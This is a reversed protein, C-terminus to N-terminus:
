GVAIRVVTGAGTGDEHYLDELEVSIAIGTSQSFLALREATIGMGLSKHRTATKSNLAAAQARGIGNDSISIGIKPVFGPLPAAVDWFFVEIALRRDPHEKQALGHWIANEVFPQILLPPVQIARTDLGAQEQISFTFQGAFRLSEMEAYYRTAALENELSIAEMRSNELVLRILRSFKTLYNSAIDRDSLQIFRNISNLSNFIFHPNMQARLASMQYESLRQRFEAEKQAFEAEKQRMEAEKQRLEAALRVQRLRFVWVLYVIALLLAVMFLLFWWTAYWPPEIVIQLTKEAGWVGDRNQCKVRFLYHGPAIKTYAASNRPGCHVWGTDVGELRYAYADQAPDTFNIASWSVAFFNDVYPLVVEDLFDVHKAGKWPRGFVSFETFHVPPGESLKPIQGPDLRYLGGWNISGDMRVYMPLEPLYMGNEPGFRRLQGTQPKYLFVGAFGSIWIDGNKDVAVHQVNGKFNAIRNVQQGEPLAPDFWSVGARTAMWIRGQADEAFNKVYNSSLSHPNGAITKFSSIRGSAPDLCAVGHEGSAASLWVQGKRSVFLYVGGEFPFVGMKAHHYYYEVRGSQPWYRLLTPGPGQQAVSIWLSGDPAPKIQRLEFIPTPKDQLIDPPIEFTGIAAGSATIKHIFGANTCVWLMGDAWCLDNFKERTKIKEAGKMKLNIAVIQGTKEDKRLLSQGDDGIFWTVDAAGDHWCQTPKRAFLAGPTCQFVSRLSDHVSLTKYTAWIRGERDGFIRKQEKGDITGPVSADHWASFQKTAPDFLTLHQATNLWLKGDPRRLINLIMDMDVGVGDGVRDYHQAYQAWQKSKLDFVRLGGWWGGIWLQEFRADPCITMIDPTYSEEPPQKDGKFGKLLPYFVVKQQNLDVQMLGTGVPTQGKTWFTGDPAELASYHLWAFNGTYTQSEQTANRVELSPGALFVEQHRDFQSVATASSVWLRGKSDMFIATLASATPELRNLYTKFLDTQPNYRVLGAKSAIWLLGTEDEVMGEIENSPMSTSDQPDATYSRFVHGDYRVLGKHAENSLWLFGRSDQLRIRVNSWVDWGDKPGLEYFHRYTPQPDFWSADVLYATGNPLSIPPGQKQALVIQSLSSTLLAM